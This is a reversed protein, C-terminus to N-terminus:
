SMQFSKIFNLIAIQGTGDFNMGTLQVNMKRQSRSIKDAVKGDNLDFKDDLRYRCYNM